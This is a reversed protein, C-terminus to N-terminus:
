WWRRRPTRTPASWLSRKSWSIAVPKELFLPVGADALEVAYPTHLNCRTGIAIADPRAERLLAAVDDYFRVGEATHPGLYDIRARAGQEDPDVVGVLRLDPEVERFPGHILSHIRRGYGIVGLRVATTMTEVEANVWGHHFEPQGLPPADRSAVNKEPWALWSNKLVMGSSFRFGTTMM